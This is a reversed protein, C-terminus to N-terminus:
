SLGPAAGASQDVGTAARPPEAAAVNAPPAGSQGPASPAEGASTAGRADVAAPAPPAAGPLAGQGSAEPRVVTETNDTRVVIEM